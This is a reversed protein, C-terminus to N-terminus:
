RDPMPDHGGGQEPEGDPADDVESAAHDLPKRQVVRLVQGSVLALGSALAPGQWGGLAVGLREVALGAITLTAVGFAPAAAIAAIRDSFTWWSWGAGVVWLLMLAALATIAIAGPSSPTLEDDVAPLPRPGSVSSLVTAGSLPVDGTGTWTQLGASGSASLHEHWEPAVFTTLEGPPLDSLTVRSLTDYELAGRETPRRAALDELTGVFVYVDDIRESPVAARAANAINIALFTATGDVDDVVFVLPTDTPLTAAIRGALTVASLDEVSIFPSQHRQTNVIPVVLLLVLVATLTVSRWGHVDTREWIWTLAMAALIPLAFGFALVREPPFWGSVSGVGVGVLTFAGWAVLFRRTFSHVQLTGIAALPLTAWPAFRRMGERFRVEYNEVLLGGLGARRLFADKSTDVTLAPPGALAALMGTGVVLGGGALAGMVRGADSRLGHEPELLWSVGAATVLIAAGAVFFQPHSLGGGGLLVAAAVTGRLTRRALAAAAALFTVAFVLNSVYGAALHVAFLGGMLGALMWGLRHGRTRRHVLAVCALGASVGAAQQLGAITTIPGSRL